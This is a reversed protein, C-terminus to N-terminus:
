SYDRQSQVETSIKQETDGAYDDEGAQKEIDSKMFFLIIKGIISMSFYVIAIFM